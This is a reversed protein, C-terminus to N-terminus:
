ADLTGLYTELAAVFQEPRELQPFHGAGDILCLTAQSLKAHLRKASQLDTGPLRDNSGWLLLSPMRPTPGGDGAILLEVFRPVIQPWEDAITRELSAPVCALDFFARQIARPTYVFRKLLVRMLRKAGPRQGLRRLVRPTVPMAFGNVLVLGNVRAPARGALSWVVSAGFSNGVCCAREVGLVNMLEVPWRAYDAVSPLAEQETAGLGPLEPVIIRHHAALASCVRLWHFSAGGWGGHVLLLPTGEGSVHALAPRGCVVLEQMSLVTERM